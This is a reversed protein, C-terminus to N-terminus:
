HKASNVMHQLDKEVCPYENLGVHMKAPGLILNATPKKFPQAFIPDDYVVDYTLTNGKRTIRETVQLKDSYYSGDGDLWYDGLFNDTVVVLTDGEWHAQLTGMVMPEGPDARTGDTPIVRLRTRIFDDYLFVVSGPRSYIEAPAVLGKAGPLTCGYSPNKLDGADFLELAKAAYQPKYVPRQGRNERRAAANRADEANADAMAATAPFVRVVKPDSSRPPPGGATPNIIVPANMPGSRVWFGALDPKGDALRPTPLAEAAAFAAAAKAPDPPPGGPFQAVATAAVGGLLIAGLLLHANNLRM